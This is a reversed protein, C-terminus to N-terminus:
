QRQRYLSVDVVGAMAEVDLARGLFRDVRAFAEAPETILDQYEVDIWQFNPAFMLWNCARDLEREFLDALEGDPAPTVAGIMKAQSALIEGIPRRMMVLKYVYDDPLLPVLSMIVKVGRGKIQELWATNRPLDKVPEYEWYGRPNNKDAARVSDTLIELGGAALAQCM